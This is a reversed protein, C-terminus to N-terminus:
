PKKLKSAAVLTDWTQWDISRGPYAVKRFPWDTRIWNTVWAYLAADFGADYQDKTVWMRVVADYTGVPSPAVYVSGLERSGDPTLVAYAFSRRGSFRAQENEMDKMADAHTIGAHPWNNSRSFTQQLHEVSSMYAKFDIDVLDPGLPVIRFAATEVRKPPDFNAPIFSSGPGLRVAPASAASPQQAALPSAMAASVLLLGPVLKTM